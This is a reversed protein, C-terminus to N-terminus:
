RLPIIIDTYDGTEDSLNFDSIIFSSGPKLTDAIQDRADQPIEFRAL